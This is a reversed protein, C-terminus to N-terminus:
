SGFPVEQLFHYSQNDYDMECCFSDIGNTVLLYKVKLALNYRAIQDFVAQTMKVKPAKCEVLLFPKLDSDYVIIDLRKQLGNIVLGREVHISNRRFRREKELYHLTLQRVLEEPQLVLYKKRIGCFLLRKGNEKKVLLQPQYKLFDIVIRM